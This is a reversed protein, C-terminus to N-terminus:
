PHHLRLRRARSRPGLGEQVKGADRPRRCRAELLSELRDRNPGRPAGRPSGRDVRRAPPLDPPRRREGPLAVPLGRSEAQETQTTDADSSRRPPPPWRERASSRITPPTVGGTSTAASSTDSPRGTPWTPTM